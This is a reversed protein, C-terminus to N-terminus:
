MVSVRCHCASVAILSRRVREDESTIDYRMFM